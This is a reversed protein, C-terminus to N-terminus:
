GPGEPMRKGTKTGREWAGAHENDRLSGRWAILKRAAGPQCLEHHELGHVAQEKGGADPPAVAEAAVDGQGKPGM